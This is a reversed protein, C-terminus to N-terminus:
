CDGTERAQRARHRRASGERITEPVAGLQIAHARRPDTVDYHAAEPRSGPQFWERRMGIRAAFEHLEELTDAQLHSWRATLRGVTAQMRMDDVYVTM